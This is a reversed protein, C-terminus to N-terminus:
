ILAEASCDSRLLFSIWMIAAVLVNPKSKAQESATSNKDAPEETKKTSVKRALFKALKSREQKQMENAGM